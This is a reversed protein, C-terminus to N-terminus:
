GMTKYIKKILALHAGGTMRGLCALCCPRNKSDKIVCPACCQHFETVHLTPIRCPQRAPLVPFVWPRCHVIHGPPWSALLVSSLIESVSSFALIAYPATATLIPHGSRGIGGVCLVVFSM